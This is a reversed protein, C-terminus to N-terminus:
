LITPPVYWCSKKHYEADSYRHLGIWGGHNRLGCAHLHVIKIQKCPNFAKYGEDCFAKIIRSEIGPYNQYFNTNENLITESIFKSNFIYCDHSGGYNDMLPHSMDHEYRTLAYVNKDNKLNDILREDTEHLIIDANTIMCIKDHLNDIIYKFFDVYKPILGVNIVHIKESNNTLNRLKTLAEEDDVFLHIKEIQDNLFNKLLTTDLEATRNKDLNSLYKSIYYTSILHIM